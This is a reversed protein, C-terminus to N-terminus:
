CSREPLPNSSDPELTTPSGAIDLYTDMADATIQNAGDTPTDTDTLPLSIYVPFVGALSRLFVKEHHTLEYFGSIVVVDVHPFIDTLPADSELVTRYAESLTYVNDGVGDRRLEYYVEYVSAVLTSTEAALESNEVLSRVDEPFHYGEGELETILDTFHDRYLHADDLLGRDAVTRLARDILRRRTLADLLSGPGAIREYCESVITNFDTVRLRLPKYDAAWADTVEDARHDNNEIHLISAPQDGAQEAVRDFVESQLTDFSPSTFFDCGNAM